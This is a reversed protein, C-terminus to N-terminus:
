RVSIVRIEVSISARSFLLPTYGPLPTRSPKWLAECWEFSRLFM